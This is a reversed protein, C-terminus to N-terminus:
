KEKRYKRVVPEAPPDAPPEAGGVKEAVHEALGRRVLSDAIHQECEVTQGAKWGNKHIDVKLVVQM